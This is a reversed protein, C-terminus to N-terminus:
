RMAALRTKTTAFRYKDILVSTKSVFNSARLIEILVPVHNETFHVVFNGIEKAYDIPKDSLEYMLIDAELEYSIKPKLNIKKMCNRSVLRVTHIVDLRSVNVKHKALVDFKEGAHKTFYIM